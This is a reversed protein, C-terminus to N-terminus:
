ADINAGSETLLLTGAETLLAGATVTLPIDSRGPCKLAGDFWWYIYTAM